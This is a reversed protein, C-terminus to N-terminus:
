RARGKRGGEAVRGLRRRPDAREAREARGGRQRAPNHRDELRPARAPKGRASDPRLRSGQLHGRDRQQLLGDRGQAPHRPPDGLRHTGAGRPQDAALQQDGRRKRVGRLAQRDAHVSAPARRGMRRLVHHLHLQPDLPGPGPPQVPHRRLVPDARRQDPLLPAGRLHEEVPAPVARIGPRLGRRHRRQDGDAQRFREDPAQGAPGSRRRDQDSAERQKAPAKKAGAKRATTKKATAKTARRSRVPRDTM